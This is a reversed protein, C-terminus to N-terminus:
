RISRGQRLLRIRHDLSPPPPSIVSKDPILRARISAELAYFLGMYLYIAPLTTRLDGFIFIYAFSSYIIKVRIFTHLRFIMEEEPVMSTTLAEWSAVVLFAIILVFGIIGTDVLAGLPGNHYNHNFWFQLIEDKMVSPSLVESMNVAFGRGILYYDKANDWVYAWLTFRWETSKDAGLQALMDVKAFPLWSLSRQVPLPLYPVFPIVLVFGALILLFLQLVQKTRVAPPSIFTRYLFTIAVTEVILTRFGSLGAFMLCLFVGAYTSLRFRHRGSTLILTAMLLSIAVGNMSTLRAVSNGSEIADMTQMLGAVYPEIFMYQFTIRGGSQVFLQEALIPIFSGVVMLVVAWKWQRATLTISRSFLMFGACVFYKVYATGGIVDGGGSRLGFGRERIIFLLWALLILLLTFSWPMKNQNSKLITLRAMMVCIFGAMVLHVLQLGRPLGPILLSSSSLGIISIVMIQPNNILAVVPAALVVAVALLTNQSITAYIAAATIGLALCLKILLAAPNNHNTSM